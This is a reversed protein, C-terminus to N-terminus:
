IDIGKYKRWAKIAIYSFFASLGLPILSFIGAGVSLCIVSVVFMAIAWILSYIFAIFERKTVSFERHIPKEKKKMFSEDNLNHKEKFRKLTETIIEVGSLREESINKIDDAKDLYTSLLEKNKDVYTEDMIQYFEKYIAKKEKKPIVIEFDSSFQKKMKAYSKDSLMICCIYFYSLFGFHKNQIDNITLAPIEEKYKNFFFDAVKEESINCNNNKNFNTTASSLYSCILKVENSNKFDFQSCIEEYLCTDNGTSIGIMLIGIILLLIFAPMTEHNRIFLVIGVVILVIGGYLMAKKFDEKNYKM